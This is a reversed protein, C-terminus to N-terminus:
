KKDLFRFLGDPTQISTKKIGLVRKTFQVCTINKIKSQCDPNFKGNYRIFRWGHLELIKIDRLKIHIKVINNMSVFQYIIGQNNKIFIPACHRFHKCVIQAIIKHSKTSFGIYVM